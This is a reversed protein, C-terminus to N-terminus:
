ANMISLDEKNIVTVKFVPLSDITNYLLQAKKNNIKEIADVGGVYM